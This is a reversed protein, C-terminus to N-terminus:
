LNIDNMQVLTPYNVVNPVRINFEKKRGIHSIAVFFILGFVFILVVLFNGSIKIDSNGFLNNFVNM